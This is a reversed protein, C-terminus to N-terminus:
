LVQQHIDRIQCIFMRRCCENGIKLSSLVEYAPQNQSLQKFYPIWYHGIPNGCSFCNIPYM